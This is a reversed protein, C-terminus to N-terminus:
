GRPINVRGLIEKQKNEMIEREENEMHDYGLLHLMSHTILFAYERRTSHGYAAAQEKIKEASLIIDGLILEGSDPDFADVENEEAYGFDSYTPYSVAPFSLVDTTKDINRFKRNIDRISDGDEIFINVTAEFPCNETDLVAECVEEAVAEYDFNFIRDFDDEDYDIEFYINM